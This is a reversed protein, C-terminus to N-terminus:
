KQIAELRKQYWKENLPWHQKQWERRKELRIEDEWSGYRNAFLDLGTMHEISDISVVYSSLHHHHTVTQDFIFGIVEPKGNYVAFAAKYFYRPVVIQNDGITTVPNTFVPGSVVDIKSFRRSWDRVNHELELWIGDNFGQEMPAINSLLFTADMSEKQWAMDASPVLHGRRYGSGKYDRYHGSGTTIAPDPNFEQNRKHKPRNMMDVTLTYSVWEPLEYTEVYSLSFGPKHYVEGNVPEPHFSTMSKTEVAPDDSWRSLFYMLILLIGVIILITYSHRSAVSRSYRRNHTPLHFRQM